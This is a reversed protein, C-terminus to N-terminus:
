SSGLVVPAHRESSSSMVMVPRAPLNQEGDHLALEGQGDSTGAPVVARGCHTRSFCPLECGVLQARMQLGVAFGSWHGVLADHLAM